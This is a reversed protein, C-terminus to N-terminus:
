ERLRCVFEAQSGDEHCRGGIVTYDVSNWSWRQNLPVNSASYGWVYFTADDDSLSVVGGSMDPRQGDVRKAYYFAGNNDSDYLVGLQTNEIFAHDGSYDVTFSPM